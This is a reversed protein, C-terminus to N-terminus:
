RGDDVEWSVAPPAQVSFDIRNKSKVALTFGQIFQSGQWQGKVRGAKEQRTEAAEPHLL